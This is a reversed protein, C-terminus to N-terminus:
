ESQTGLYAEIVAPDAIVDAPLGEAIIRGQDLVILRDSVATLLPLVHEILLITVGDDKLGTILRRMREIEAQTLSSAPEDLLLIRPALALASAIMVLKRYFIPLAGALGNHHTAPFGVRDLVREAAAVNARHRGAAASFEVATLVNDIASMSPFVSERQFTRAIGARGIRHSRWSQIAQGDFEVTGRDARFPIHTIINFLTSKGSGNPGAIGLIEGPRVQFSVDDVAVLGGFSKTLGAVQLLAPPQDAAPAAGSGPGAPSTVPENM